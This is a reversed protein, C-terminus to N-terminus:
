KSRVIQKLGAAAQNKPYLATSQGNKATELAVPSPVYGLNDDLCTRRRPRLSKTKTCRLALKEHIVYSQNNALAGTPIYHLETHPLTAYAIQNLAVESSWVIDSVTPLARLRRRIFISACTGSRADADAAFRERRGGERINEM